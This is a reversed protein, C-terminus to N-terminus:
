ITQDDRDISRCMVISLYNTQPRWDCEGVIKYGWRLYMEILKNAPAATDLAMWRGGNARAFALAVDHFQRGIGIGQFTPLVAFQSFTWIDPERYIEVQSAPQPPRVTLTGLINGNLEAILGHGTAFRGATDEVTQHTAWYRLNNAAQKAYAAHILETLLVMNDATSIARITVPVNM